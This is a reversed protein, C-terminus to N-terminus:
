WLRDLYYDRTVEDSFESHDEVRSAESSKFSLSDQLQPRAKRSGARALSPRPEAPAAAHAHAGHRQRPTNQCRTRAVSSATDAMYRPSSSERCSQRGKAPSGYYGPLVSLRPTNQTTKPYRPEHEQLRSSPPKYFYLLPSSLPVSGPLGDQTDAAYRSTIRSSRCRLQCTDMEVIRPSREFNSDGGDSLRRRHVVPLSLPKVQAEQASTREQEISKRSPANKLAHSSAQLRMLAQLRHLTTAAQKRVLYGRVLAQLKVLSKLARLAKRALYGRFAKQIMVAAEVEREQVCNCPRVQLLEGAVVATVSPRRSGDAVSNRPKAFSWRRKELPAIGGHSAAANHEKDGEKKGTLVKKLWRMARGM